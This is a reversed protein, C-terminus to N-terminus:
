SISRLQDQYNPHTERILKIIEKKALGRTQIGLNQAIIKWEEVLYQNAEEDPYNRYIFSIYNHADDDSARIRRFEQRAFDSETKIM